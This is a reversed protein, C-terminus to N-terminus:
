RKKSYSKRKIIFYLGTFCVAISLFILLGSNAIEGYTWQKKILFETTSSTSGAQAQGVIDFREGTDGGCIMSYGGGKELMVSLKEPDSPDKIARVRWGAQALQNLESITIDKKVDYIYPSAIDSIICESEGASLERWDFNIM